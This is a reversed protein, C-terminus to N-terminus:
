ERKLRREEPYVAIAPVRGERLDDQLGQWYAVTLLDGHVEQFLRRLTRDDIRLGPLMEEPLFVTGEEFFWDPVEEEGDFRDQNTRIKTETFPELADYDFLYVKRFKSVGYNRGDLDKNFIGAAANNKICHGLNVVAEAAERPGATELFVPLPVMKFQVILHKFLIQDGQPSVSGAAAALLEALLDAAFWAAPLKIDYYIVNDLMSGTRNIEHVRTYKRLVSPVGEFRGWKYQATPHDRMVKLVYGSAPASFGIAVTGRFGVATDLHEGTLAFEDRLENMVAVKGVHNFGITSYHLGLPRNPMISHLFECLEHYLPNTCHLNALTSSFLFHADAESTLVADVYIGAEGNMLAIILPVVRGDGLLIRGVLHAGRDRFFGADIMQIAEIVWGEGATAEGATTEGAAPGLVANVRDAVLRADGQPDRFPVTFYPIAFIEAVTVPSVQAGGPFDLHVDDFRDLGTEYTEAYSYEMPQWEEHYIKRRVSHFYAFAIDAEYRGQISRRYSREVALWAEASRALAPHAAALGDIFGDISEIYVSLRRHSLALSRAYDRQEFAQKALHPIQRSESYYDDFAQLVFGATAAARDPEDGAADIAALAATLAAAQAAAPTDPERDMARFYGALGM